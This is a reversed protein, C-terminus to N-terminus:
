ITRYLINAVQLYPENLGHGANLMKYIAKNFTSLSLPKNTSYTDTRDSTDYTDSCTDTFEQSDLFLSILITLLFSLYQIDIIVCLFFLVCFNSYRLVSLDFVILSCNLFYRINNRTKGLILINNKMCHLLYFIFTVRSFCQVLFSSNRVLHRTLLLIM